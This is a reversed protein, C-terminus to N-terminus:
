RGKGESRLALLAHNGENNVREKRLSAPADGELDVICVHLCDFSM